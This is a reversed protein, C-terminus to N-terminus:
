KLIYKKGLVLQHMSKILETPIIMACSVTESEEDMNLVLTTTKKDCKILYGVSQISHADFGQVDKTPVWAEESTPDVWQVYVYPYKM